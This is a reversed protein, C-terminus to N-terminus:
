IQPINIDLSTWEHFYTWSSLVFEFTLERVRIMKAKLEDFSSSLANLSGHDTALSGHSGHSAWIKQFKRFLYGWLLDLPGELLMSISAYDNFVYKPLLASIKRVLAFEDSGM